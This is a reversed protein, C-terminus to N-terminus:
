ALTDELGLEILLPRIESKIQEENEKEIECSISVQINLKPKQTLKILIKSYFLMWKALPIIGKWSLTSVKSLGQSEIPTHKLKEHEIFITKQSTLGGANVSVVIPDITPETVILVGENTITGFDTTWKQESPTYVQSYQDFGRTTLHYSQGVKLNTSPLIIELKTLKPPDQLRKAEEPLLIIFEDSIDLDSNYITKGIRIDSILDAKRIGIAFLSNAVGKIVTNKLNESNLVRPFRPSSYFLDRMSKLGWATFAPPWNRILYNPNIEDSIEGDSKLRQIYLDILSKSQSSHIQGLDLKHPKNDKDLYYLFRYSKWVSEKIEKKARQINEKIAKIQESDIKLESAESEIATWALAKRAAQNLNSDSEPICFFLGSKFIRSTNGYKLFSDQVFSLTDVGQMNKSPHLVIFQLLARDPIQHNQSPFYILDIGNYNPFVSRIETELLETIEIPDISANRDVFRKILNEQTSFKYKAGSATLYYCGDLLSQLVSDLLGIDLDPEGIALKIEPVTALKDTVQGGNSEFFIIGATRRHLTKKSINETAEEDLRISHSEKKGAIDTTVAAELKAEGLQEFVAARFKDDELPANGLDILPFKQNKKYAESYTRSVWLALLRLVGRTQQFRPLSQWKREFLSIVSPHFPYSAEFHEKAQNMSFWGPLHSEHNQLWNLYEAITKNAEPPLGNWEFLRRRIIENTEKGSSLFMAKGLRDLLKKIRDFDAIDDPTLELESAPISVALVINNRSRVFESLTQIFHYFQTGLNKYDRHKSIYNLIEDLLILYSTNPDFLKQLDDGAPSIFQTDHKELLSYGERGGLQFAIEGWPTLRLPEDAKTRGSVSSFETGVFIATKVEPISTVGAKGLIQNVGNWEQYDKGGKALHYLLTLSHTKGGGFQTSLNFIPSTEVTIGNWRRVAQSAFDLLSETLYTRQFFKVPDTYDKGAVGDRVHDLHVAFESADLPRGERLDERPSIITHWPKLNM